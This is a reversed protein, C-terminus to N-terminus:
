TGGMVRDIGKEITRVRAVHEAWLRQAEAARRAQVPDPAASPQPVTAAPAPISGTTSPVLAQQPLNATATPLPLAANALPSGIAALRVRARRCYDISLPTMQEEGHGARYKMLARCLDGRALEWAKALYAVGYRINTEPKLLETAPGKHGLMAATTPRVQMLGLEGVKGVATPDYSSEVGAVADAVAPPLGLKDAERTLLALYAARGRPPRMEEVVTLQDPIAPPLPLEPFPRAADRGAEMGLASGPLLAGAAIMLGGVFGARGRRFGRGM